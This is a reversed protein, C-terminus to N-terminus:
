GGLRQLGERQDADVGLAPAILDIFPNDFVEKGEEMLDDKGVLYGSLTSSKKNPGVM